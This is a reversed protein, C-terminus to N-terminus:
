YQWKVLRFISKIRNQRYHWESGYRLVLLKGFPCSIFCRSQLSLIVNGDSFVDMKKFRCGKCGRDLIQWMSGAIFITLPRKSHCLLLKILLNMMLFVFLALPVISNCPWLANRMKRYKHVFRWSDTRIMDFMFYVSKCQTNEHRAHTCQACTHMQLGFTVILTRTNTQGLTICCIPRIKNCQRLITIHICVFCGKGTPRYKKEQTM